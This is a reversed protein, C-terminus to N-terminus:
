PKRSTPDSRLPASCRSTGASSNATSNDIVRNNRGFSKGFEFGISCKHPDALRATPHRICWVSKADNRAAAWAVEAPM